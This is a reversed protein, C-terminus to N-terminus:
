TFDLSGLSLSIKVGPFFDSCTKYLDVLPNLDHATVKRKFLTCHSDKLIKGAMKSSHKLNLWDDKIFRRTKIGTMKLSDEFYILGTM